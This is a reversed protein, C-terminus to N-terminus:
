QEGSLGGFGFGGASAALDLDERQPRWIWIKGTLGGFGFRGASAAWVEFFFSSFSRFIIVRVMPIDSKCSKRLHRNEGLCFKLFKEYKQKSITSRSDEIKPGRPTGVGQDM